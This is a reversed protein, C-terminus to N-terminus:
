TAVDRASLATEREKRRLPNTPSIPLEVRPEATSPSSLYWENNMIQAVTPRTDADVDLIERLLKQVDAPLDVPM